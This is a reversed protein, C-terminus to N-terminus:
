QTEQAAEQACSTRGRTVLAGDAAHHQTSCPLSPATYLLPSKTSHLALSVQHQTSCPLSPATYLLDRRTGGLRWCLAALGGTSHRRPRACASPAPADDTYITPTDDTYIGGTHGPTYTNYEVPQYPCPSMDHSPCPSM